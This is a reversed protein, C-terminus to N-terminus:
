ASILMDRVKESIEKYTGNRLKAKKGIFIKVTPIKPLHKIPLIGNHLINFLGEVRVPIFSASMDKLIIGIGPEFNKIDGDTTITGEPFILIHWGSDLRRGINELSQKFGYTRSLPIVNLIFCVFLYFAIGEIIRRIFNGKKYFFHSFHHEISMVTAIKIRIKLPLSYLIVLSDILSSHNAAFVVPENVDDLNHINYLGAKYLIRIFPFILFQTLTRFFIFIRAYPFIFFPLKTKEKGPHKIYEEIDKLTTNKSINLGDFDFGHKEELAASLEIMDLSDFGLDKELLTSDSLKNENIRKFKRLIEYISSAGAKNDYINNEKNLIFEKKDTKLKHMVINAIKDKKPKFLTTRPFDGYEWISFSDIYQYPNLKSNAQYIIERIRFNNKLKEKKNLLLVAHLEKINNVEIEIVASDQIETFTNLVIEIDQPYINIGDDRIIVDDARSRFYVDGNNDIDLIDGTKFWGDKFVESTLKEDKYYGESVNDGKIYVEKNIIKIEQGELFSGISGQKNKSPDTLAVLPATETLGYGQFVSFAICRFFDETQPELAAGGSIIAIFRIGIKIRLKFFLIARLQWKKNRLRNYKNQFKENDLDFASVIYNKLISLLRPLIGLIWIHEQKIAKIIESPMISNFYVVSSKIILPIFIGIVQGYMHSLPVISLIKPNIMLRFLIMWKDFVPKAALLNSSINKHTLVVGKPVSTTGSTFVIEAINSDNVDFVIDENASFKEIINQIDEIFLKEAKLSSLISKEKIDNISFLILKAQVKKNVMDLFDNSSNSDVPVIITGSFICGFFVVTWYFHNSTKIIVRDNINIGKHRLYASFKLSSEYLKEFSINTTRYKDRFYFFRNKEKINKQLLEILTSTQKIRSM